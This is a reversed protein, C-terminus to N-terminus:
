DAPKPADPDEAAEAAPEAAEAAESGADAEGEAAPAEAEAQAAADAEAKAKAEAEKAEAEKAEAEKAAAAKAEAEEAAVADAEAKRKAALEESKRAKEQEPTAEGLILSPGGGSRAKRILSNVTDSPVAGQGIWYEARELDLVLRAPNLLPKYHGISEVFRGDRPATRDTVVIRYHPKKKRGMRRLRIRVAM